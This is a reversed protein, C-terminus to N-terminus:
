PATGPVAAWLEEGHRRVRGEEHLKELHAMVNREAARLLRPHQKHYLQRVLDTAKMPGERLSVWLSKERRQRHALLDKVFLRPEPLPPGHGPLYLQDKRTILLELSAFYAAMNGDPPSVVSSSWSMVHDGSLLLGDSERAFCIHDAAHGPTHIVKFGDFKEDHSLAQDPVIGELLPASSFACSPAGLRHQLEPVGGVHDSHRHSILIKTVRGGTASIIARVHEPSDPGPDLVITGGETDLLYTNTGYYTMVGPNRAVIRRVGPAVYSATGYPPEEETLFPM